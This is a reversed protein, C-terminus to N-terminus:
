DEQDTCSCQLAAAVEQMQRVHNREERIVEKLQTISEPNDLFSSLFEYFQMTDQEFEIAQELLERLSESQELKEQELSFTQNGVIDRLLARGMAELEAQKQDTPCSPIMATFLEAHRHEEEALWLFIEALEPESTQEAAQRYTKEGNEEVQVAIHLIDALTFM